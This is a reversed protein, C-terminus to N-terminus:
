LVILVSAVHLVEPNIEFVVHFLFKLKPANEYNNPLFTKAAHTFDRLYPSGFGATQLQSQGWSPKGGGAM